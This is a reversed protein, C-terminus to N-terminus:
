IALQRLKEEANDYLYGTQGDGMGGMMDDIFSGNADDYM